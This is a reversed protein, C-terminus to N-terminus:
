AAEKMTESFQTELFDHIKKAAPMAEVLAAVLKAQREKFEPSMLSDGTPVVSPLCMFPLYAERFHVVSWVRYIWWQLAVRDKGGVKSDDSLEVFVMGDEISPTYFGDSMYDPLMTDLANHLLIPAKRCVEPSLYAVNQHPSYIYLAGDHPWMYFHSDPMDDDDRVFFNDNQSHRHKWAISGLKDAPVSLADGTRYAALEKLCPALDGSITTHCIGHYDKALRFLNSFYGDCYLHDPVLMHFGMGNLRAIQISLQQVTGLLWYKNYEHDKTREMIEGPIIHIEVDMGYHELVKIGAVLRDFDQQATFLVVKCARSLASLNGPALLSPVCFDFFRDIFKEGYVPCGMVIALNDPTFPVAKRLADMEGDFWKRLLPLYVEFDVQGEM